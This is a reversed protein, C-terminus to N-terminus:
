DPRRGDTYATEGRLTTVEYQGEKMLVTVTGHQVGTPIVRRFLKTVDDPRASTAIDWDNRSETPVGRREALLEDRAAEGVSLQRLVGEQLRKALDRYEAPISAALRASNQM